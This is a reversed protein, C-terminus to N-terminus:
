HGHAALPLASRSSTPAVLRDASRSPERARTASRAGWASAARRVVRAEM